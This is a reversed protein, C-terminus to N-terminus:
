LTQYLWGPIPFRRKNLVVGLVNANSKVLEEKARQIVEWRSREAEVVLVVGDCLSAVRTASSAENLAPIDIVLFRYRNKMSKLLKTFGDSDFIESLNGNTTGASLIHPNRAPLSQIVDGDSQGNALVDTLGPSLNAKFIRHVSPHGINADVLLVPENNHRSLTAALNAAVASVGEGRRCGTVALVYPAGTSGNSSLLLRERFAEYHERIKAHAVIQADQVKAKEELEALAEKHKAKLRGLVLKREAELRAKEEKDAKAKAQKYEAAIAKDQALKRKLNVQEAKIEKLQEEARADLEALEARKESKAQAIQADQAKAKEELEALAEKYEAELRSLMQKREAELRAKEKKDAKAKAQKYEAAMSAKDKDFKRKLNAQEVKIEKPQEKARADLEALEAKKQRKAQAIKADQAKVKEELEALAKKYEAELQSITKKYEAELRAKAESTVKAKAQKYKAAIRAKTQRRRVVTPFVRNTRVRPIFPISALTLLRLREEAEEPTKISHDLYEAFFALGIAGFISLFLGLALNLLKRPRVPKIPLTAPQVVSINSIKDAEMAHDIRAQELNESYKQYNVEQTSIERTLRMIGVEADNLTKLQTRADAFQKKRAKVKAQLSSLTAQETLLALELQQHSINLGRTVQTRVAEEKDLLAQAEDIEQQIAQVMRSKKTFNTLLNLRDLQLKYLEGRMADAAYNTFGTTEGTVMTEPVKALVKQLAQINARSTALAADTHDIELELVGIRNLLVQRQEALSSIGTENKLNRFENESQVLKDRLHDSQQVFFQYSGPTQHVAIHKELYLDILKAIVEQALKPNKAEYSIQIISSDKMTEFELNKMVGLVIKDRDSLPEVLDSRELLNRAGKVANRVERRIVRITGRTTDEASLDEGHYKFFAKVGISDVVKESLERSKLIELESNVESERSQNIQIIQGTAATPDLTVSERGLRVLLKANSRYIKAGLFTVVTMTTIVAFFFLIM